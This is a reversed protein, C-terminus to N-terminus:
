KKNKSKNKVPEAWAKYGSLDWIVDRGFMDVEECTKEGKIIYQWLISDMREAKKRM